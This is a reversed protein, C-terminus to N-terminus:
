MYPARPDVTPVNIWGTGNIVNKLDTQLINKVQILIRRLDNEFENEKVLYGLSSENKLKKNKFEAFDSISFSEHILNTKVILFNLWYQQRPLFDIIIERKVEVNTFKVRLSISDNIEPNFVNQSINYGEELLFSFVQTSEIIVSEIITKM